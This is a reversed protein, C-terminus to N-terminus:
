DPSFELIDYSEEVVDTMDPFVSKISGILEEYQKMMDEHKDTLYSTNLEGAAKELGAAKVSLENAGITKSTSKLAHVTTEYNDWDKLDYYRKLNEYRESYGAM